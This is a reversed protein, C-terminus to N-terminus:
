LGREAGSKSEFVIQIDDIMTPTDALDLSGAYRVTLSKDSTWVLDVESSVAKSLPYSYITKPSTTKVIDLVLGQEKNGKCTRNLLEAQYWGGPSAARGILESNCDVFHSGLAGILLYCLVFGLAVKVALYSKDGKGDRALDHFSDQAAYSLTPKTEGSTFQENAEYHKALEKYTFSLAVIEISLGVYTLISLAVQELVTAEERWMFSIAMGMLWPFLGVVAFMRWGNGQTRLWSWRLSSSKDIAAAPFALSLRALVYLAPIATIQKVWDSLRGSDEALVGVSAFHLPIRTIFELLSKIAYIAIVWALFRLERYGPKANLSKYRDVDGILVLRHCAVALFSFSLGYGLLIIWPFFLPFMASYNLWVGWIVVLALTPVSIARLFEVKNIWAFFVAAAIIKLFPLKYNM